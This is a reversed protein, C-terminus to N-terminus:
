MTTMIVVAIAPQIMGIVVAIIWHARKMDVEEKVAKKRDVRSVLCNYGFL